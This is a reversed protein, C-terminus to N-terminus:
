NLIVEDQYAPVSVNWGTQEKIYDGFYKASDAEGHVVFIERPPTKLQKLWRILEEKDAHASFGAIQVIRARVPYMNGFIRVEKAGDVIQRGLTGIAQYGVFM